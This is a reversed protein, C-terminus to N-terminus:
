LIFCVILGFVVHSLFFFPAFPLLKVNRGTLKCFIIVIGQMFTAVLLFPVILWAGYFTGLVFIHKLDGGMKLMVIMAPILLLVYAIIAGLVHSMGFGMIPILLFRSLLFLGNLWNPIKLYKIDIYSAILMFLTLVIVVIPETYVSLVDEHIHNVYSM